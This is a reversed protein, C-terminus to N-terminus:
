NVQKKINYRWLFDEYAEQYVPVDPALQIAEVYASIADIYLKHSEYFRALIIKNLATQEAVENAIQDLSQKVAEQEAPALRKILYQKSVQGVDNKSAVEILIANADAFKADSLDIKYLTESTEIKALEDDFMNRFTIIYPPEVSTGAWSIIANKNFVGSAQNEPLLLAISKVEGRDVAGTASLRNKQGEASNSSLIFDTYKNLVSTGTGVKGALDAVKYNGPKKIELPKGSIHVLGLYSNDVLKLEDTEKLALGTKIPQWTNEVKVENSGKNALVKFAYDQAAAWTTLMFFGSFLILPKTRM